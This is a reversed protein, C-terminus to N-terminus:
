EVVASPGRIEVGLRMLESGDLDLLCYADISYFTIEVARGCVLTIELSITNAPYKEGPLYV